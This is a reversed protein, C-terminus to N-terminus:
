PAASVPPCTLKRGIKEPPCRPLSVSPRERGWRRAGSGVLAGAAAHHQNSIAPVQIAVGRPTLRFDSSPMKLERGAGARPRRPRRRWSRPAAVIPRRPHPPHRRAAPRFNTRQPDVVRRGTAAGRRHRAGAARAPSLPGNSSGIDGIPVGVETTSPEASMGRVHGIRREQGQSHLFV